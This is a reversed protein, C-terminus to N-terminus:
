LRSRDPSNTLMTSKYRTAAMIWGPPPRLSIGCRSLRWNQKNLQVRGDLEEMSLIKWVSALPYKQESLPKGSSTHERAAARTGVVLLTHCATLALTSGKYYQLFLYQKNYMFRQPPFRYDGGFKIQNLKKFWVHM